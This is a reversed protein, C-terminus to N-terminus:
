AAAWFDTAREIRTVSIEAAADKPCNVADFERGMQSTKASRDLAVPGEKLIREAIARIRSSKM